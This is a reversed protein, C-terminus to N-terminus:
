ARRRGAGSGRGSGPRAANARSPRLAWTDPVEGITVAVRAGGSVYGGPLGPMSAEAEGREHRWAWHGAASQLRESARQASEHPSGPAHALREMDTRSRHGQVWLLRLEM